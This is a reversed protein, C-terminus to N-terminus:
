PAKWVAASGGEPVLGTSNVRVIWGELTAPAPDPAYFYAGLEIKTGPPLEPVDYLNTPGDHEGAVGAGVDDGTPGRVTVDPRYAPYSSANDVRLHVVVGPPGLEFRTVTVDVRGLERTEGIAAVDALERTADAATTAALPTRADVLEDTEDGGSSCAVLVPVTAAALIIARM